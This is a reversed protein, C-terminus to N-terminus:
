RPVQRDLKSALYTAIEHVTFEGTLIENPQAKGQFQDILNVQLIFLLRTFKLSVQSSRM